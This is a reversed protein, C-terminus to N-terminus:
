QTPPPISLKAGDGGDGEDSPNVILYIKNGNKCINVKMFIFNSGPGFWEASLLLDTTLAFENELLSVTAQFAALTIIRTRAASSAPLPVPLIIKLGNSGSENCFALVEEKKIIQTKIPKIKDARLSDDIKKQDFDSPKLHKLEALNAM